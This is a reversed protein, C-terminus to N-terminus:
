MENLITFEMKSTFKTNDKNWKRSIKVKARCVWVNPMMSPIEIGPYIHYMGKNFYSKECEKPNRGMIKVFEEKTVDWVFGEHDGSPIAEFELVDRIIPKKM